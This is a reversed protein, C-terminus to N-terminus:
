GMLDRAQRILQNRSRQALTRERLSRPKVQKGMAKKIKAIIKKIMPKILKLLFNSIPKALLASVTAITAITATTTAAELPPLYETVTALKNNVPEVVTICKGKVLVQKDNCQPKSRGPRKVEATNISHGPTAIAPPTVPAEPKDPKTNSGVNPAQAEPHIVSIDPTYSMSNFTPMGADCFITVRSPDNETLAPSLESDVHAEVCGPMDIVPLQMSVGEPLSPAPSPLDIPIDRIQIDHIISSNIGIDEITM